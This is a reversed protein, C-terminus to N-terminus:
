SGIRRFTCTGITDTCLKVGMLSNVCVSSSGSGAKM